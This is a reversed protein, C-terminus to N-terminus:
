GTAARWSPRSQLRELWARVQAYPELDHRLLPSLEVTCGLVVDGLSFSGTVYERGALQQELVPVFRALEREAYATLQEDAPQNRRAKIFREVVLITYNPDLHCAGFFMWRLVDAQARPEGPWLASPARAALYSAIAASEWLVFQEDELTPIKGMPNLKLYEPTRNDGRAFDLLVPELATGLEAAVIRVRKSNPSIRGSYHRM